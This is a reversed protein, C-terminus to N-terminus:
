AMVRNRIIPVKHPPGAKFPVGRVWVQIVWLVFEATCNSRLLTSCIAAVQDVTDAPEGFITVKM